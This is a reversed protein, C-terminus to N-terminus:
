FYMSIGIFVDSFYEYLYKIQKSQLTLTLPFALLMQGCSAWIGGLSYSLYIYAFRATPWWPCTYSRDERMYLILKQKYSNKTLLKRCSNVCSIRSSHGPPTMGGRGHQGQCLMTSQAYDPWVSCNEVTSRNNIQIGWQVTTSMIELYARRSFCLAEPEQMSAGMYFRTGNGSFLLCQSQNSSTFYCKKEQWQRQWITHPCTSSLTAGGSTVSLTHM